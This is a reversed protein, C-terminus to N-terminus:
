INSNSIKDSKVWDPIHKSIFNYSFRQDYLFIAGWDNKHRIVRGIAQNMTRIMQQQYWEDGNIKIDTETNM